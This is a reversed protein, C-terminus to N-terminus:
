GFGARRTRNIGEQSILIRGIPTVGYSGIWVSHCSVPFFNGKLGAEKCKMLDLAHNQLEIWDDVASCSEDRLQQYSKRGLEPNPDLVEKRSKKAEPEENIESIAKNKRPVTQLSKTVLEQDKVNKPVINESESHIFM